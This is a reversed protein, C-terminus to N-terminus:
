HTVLIGEHSVPLFQGNGVYQVEVAAYAGGSLYGNTGTATSTRFSYVGTNYGNAIFNGGASSAIGHWGLGPAHSQFWTLGGDISLLITNGETAALRLGDASSAIANFFTAGIVSPQWNQGGDTSFWANTSGGLAVFRTGDASCTIAQWSQATPATSLHWNTGYDSSVYIGGPSAVAALRSGDASSTVAAWVNSPASTLAWNTGFNGSVYIGGGGVIAVLRSGDASIAIGSYNTLVSNTQVIFNTGSDSSVSVRQNPLAEAVYRGDASIVAYIGMGTTQSAPIWWTAGSDSSVQLYGNNGVVLHTGDASSSATVGQAATSGALRSWPTLLNVLNYGLVSQGPNQALTWGGTGTGAVRVVDGLNPTSPLMVTVPQSNTLVYSNNPMAQLTTGAVLQSTLTGAVNLLGAGNGSFSNGPNNFTVAGGYAGSLGGNPITGSISLATAATEAFIATPAPTLPQRPNLTTFNVAGNTRAGIDLWRANGDFVGAGFDLTVTFLGNSIGLANNSVSGSVAAGGSASDYITFRLDYIGNAPAGNDTLRGQYTFATTQGMLPGPIALLSMAALLALRDFAFCKVPSKLFIKM